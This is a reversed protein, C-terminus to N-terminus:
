ETTNEKAEIDEQILQRILDMSNFYSQNDDLRPRGSDKILESVKDVEYQNLLNVLEKMKEIKM